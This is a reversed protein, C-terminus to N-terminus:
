SLGTSRGSVTNEPHDEALQQMDASMEGITKWWDLLGESILNECIQDQSKDTAASAKHLRAATEDDMYVSILPM